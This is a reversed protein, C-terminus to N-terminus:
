PKAVTLETKTLNNVFKHRIWFRHGNGCVFVRRGMESDIEGREAEPGASKERALIMPGWLWNKTSWLLNAVTLETEKLSKAM